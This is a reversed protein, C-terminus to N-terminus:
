FEPVNELMKGANKRSSEEPWGERTKQIVLGSYSKLECATRKQVWLEKFFREQWLIPIM